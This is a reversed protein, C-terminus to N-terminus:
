MDITKPIGTFWGRPSMDTIVASPITKRLMEVMRDLPTLFHKGKTGYRGINRALAYEKGAMGHRRCWDTLSKVPPQKGARRGHEVFYAYDPFHSEVIVGTPTATVTLNTKSIIGTSNIPPILTRKLITNMGLTAKRALNLCTNYLATRNM